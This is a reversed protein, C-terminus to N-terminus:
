LQRMGVNYWSAEVIYYSTPCPFLNSLRQVALAATMATDFITKRFCVIVGRLIRDICRPLVHSNRISLGPCIVSIYQKTFYQSNHQDLLLKCPREAWKQSWGQEGDFLLSSLENTSPLSSSMLSYLQIEPLARASMPRQEITKPLCAFIPTDSLQFATGFFVRTYGIQWTCRGLNIGAYAYSTRLSNRLFSVGFTLSVTVNPYPLKLNLLNPYTQEFLLGLCGNRKLSHKQVSSCLACSEVNFTKQSGASLMYYLFSTSLGVLTRNIAARRTRFCLICLPMINEYSEEYYAGHGTTKSKASSDCPDQTMYRKSLSSCFHMM